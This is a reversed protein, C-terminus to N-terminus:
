VKVPSFVEGTQEELIKILREQVKVDNAISPPNTLRRRVFYKGSVDSFAEDTAIYFEDDAENVEIGIPGWGSYLMKTNVTGPDLTNVTVSSVGSLKKAMHFTM